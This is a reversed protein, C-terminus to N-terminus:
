EKIKFGLKIYKEVESDEVEAVIIRKELDAQKCLSEIDIIDKADILIPKKTLREKFIEVAEQNTVPNPYVLTPYVLGMIDTQTSAVNELRITTKGDKTYRSVSIGDIIAKEAYEDKLKEEMAPLGKDKNYYEPSEKLHDEVTKIIAEDPTIKGEAVKELTDKHETEIEIAKKAESVPIDFKSKLSEIAEEETKFKTEKNLKNAYQLYKAPISEVDKKDGKLRLYVRPEGTKPHKSFIDIVWNYVLKDKPSFFYKLDTDNQNDYFVDIFEGRFQIEDGIKFDKYNTFYDKKDSQILGYFSSNKFLSEASTFLETKPINFDKSLDQAPTVKNKTLEDIESKSVGIKELDKIADNMISYANKIQNDKRKKNIYNFSYEGGELEDGVFVSGTSKKYTKQEWKEKVGKAENYADILKKKAEKFTAAWKKDFGLTQYRQELKEDESIEIEPEDSVEFAKSWDYNKAKEEYGELFDKVQPQEAEVVPNRSTIYKALVRSKFMNDLSEYVRKSIQGGNKVHTEVAVVYENYFSQKDFNGEDDQLLEKIEPEEKVKNDVFEDFTTNWAEKSKEEMIPQEQLPQEVESKQKSNNYKEFDIENLTWALASKVHEILGYERDSKNIIKNNKFIEYTIEDLTFSEKGNTDAKRKIKKIKINYEDIDFSINDKDNNSLKIDKFSYDNYKPIFGLKNKNSVYKVFDPLYKTLFSQELYFRSYLNDGKRIEAEISGSPYIEMKTSKGEKESKRIKNRIQTAKRFDDEAQTFEYSDKLGTLTSACDMGVHYQKKNEDEIVAINAILANCNECVEASETIGGTYYSNLLKYKLNLPLNRRVVKKQGEIKGGGSMISCGCGCSQIDLVKHFDNTEENVAYGRKSLWWKINSHDSLVSGEKIMKANQAIYGFIVDCNNKKAFEEIENLLQSGIGVNKITNNQLNQIFLPKKAEIGYEKAHEPTSVYCNIYIDGDNRVLKGGADYKEPNHGWILLSTHKRTKNGKKDYLEGANGKMRSIFSIQRKAWNWMEPTWDKTRKMKIIWKASEQGSKIGLEQAEGKSLGAEKGEQTSAFDELEKATMNVLSKWKKYIAEQDEIKGGEDFMDGDNEIIHKGKPVSTNIKDLIQENTLKQGDFEHIVKSDVADRNIVVEGAELEVPKNTEKVVFKEGGESHLKGKVECGKDCQNNM